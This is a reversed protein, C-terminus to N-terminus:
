RRESTAARKAADERQLFKAAWVPISPSKSGESSVVTDIHYNRAFRQILAVEENYRGLKRYSAAAEWYYWPILPQNESSRGGQEEERKIEELSIHLAEEYQGQRKLRYVYGALVVTRPRINFSAASARTTESSVPPRQYRWSSWIVEVVSPTSSLATGGWAPGARNLKFLGFLANPV